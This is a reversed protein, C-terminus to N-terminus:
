FDWEVSFMVVQDTFSFNKEASVVNNEILFHPAEKSSQRFRASLHLKNKLMPATLVVGWYGTV